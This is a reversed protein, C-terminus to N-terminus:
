VLKSKKCKKGSTVVDKPLPRKRSIPVIYRTMKYNKLERRTVSKRREPFVYCTDMTFDETTSLSGVMLDDRDMDTLTDNTLDEIVGNLLLYQPPHRGVEDEDKRYDDFFTITGENEQEGLIIIPSSEEELYYGVKEEIIEVTHIEHEM